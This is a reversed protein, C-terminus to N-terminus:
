GRPRTTGGGLRVQRPARGLKASFTSTLHQQSSFGCALAIESIPLTSNRLLEHARAVRKEMVYRYPSMGTRVKMGDFVVRLPVRAVAALGACTIDNGLEEDVYVAILDFEHDSLGHRGEEGVAGLSRMTELYVRAALSEVEFDDFVHDSTLRERAYRSLAAIAERRINNRSGGRRTRRRDVDDFRDEFESRYSFAIFGHRVETARVRVNGGRPHFASSEGAFLLPRETDDEFKTETVLDGLLLCIVDADNQFELAYPRKGGVCYGVDGAAGRRDFQDLGRLPARTSARGAIAVTV